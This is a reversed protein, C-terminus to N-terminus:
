TNQFKWDITSCNSRHFSSTVLENPARNYRLIIVNANKYRCFIIPPRPFVLTPFSLSTFKNNAGSDRAFKNPVPLCESGYERGDFSSNSNM